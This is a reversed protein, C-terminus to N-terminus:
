SAPPSSWRRLAPLRIQSGLLTGCRKRTVPCVGARNRQWGLEKFADSAIYDVIRAAQRGDPDLDPNYIAVTWGACGPVTLAAMTIEGLQQWTLGGPQPYDVASLEETALVDLDVHPWWRECTVRVDQAAQTAV